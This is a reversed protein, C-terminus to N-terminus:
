ILSFMLRMSFVDILKFPGGWSYCFFYAYKEHSGQNLRPEFLENRRYGSVIKEEKTKKKPAITQMDKRLFFFNFISLHIM